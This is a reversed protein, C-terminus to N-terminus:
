NSKLTFAERLVLLSSLHGYGAIEDNRRIGMDHLRHVKPFLANRFFVTLSSRQKRRMLDAFAELLMGTAPVGVGSHFFHFGIPEASFHEIRGQHEIEKSEVIGAQLFGAKPNVVIPQDIVAADVGMPQDADRSNRNVVDVVAEFFELAAMFGSQFARDDPLRRM